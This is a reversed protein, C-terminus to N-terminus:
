TKTFRRPLIENVGVDRCFIAKMTIIARACCLQDKNKITVVSRKKKLMTEYSMGRPNYKKGNGAGRSRNKVFVLEAFFEGGAADLDEASNLEKALRDLRERSRERDRMWDTLPILPCSTWLHTGGSHHIVMRM